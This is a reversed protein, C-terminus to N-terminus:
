STEGLVFTHTFGSTDSSARVETTPKASPENEIFTSTRSRAVFAASAPDSKLQSYANDNGIAQDIKVVWIACSAPCKITANFSSTLAAKKIKTLKM